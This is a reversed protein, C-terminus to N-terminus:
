WSECILGRVHDRWRAVIERAPEILVDEQVVDTLFREFVRRGGRRIPDYLISHHVLLVLVGGVSRVREEIEVLRALADDPGLRKYGFLATDMVHLPLEWVGLRRRAAVSYAEFPYSTGTRFGADEAYGLTSDIELGAAGAATWTAPVRFRLYHQRGAVVPERCVRQLGRREAGLTEPSDYSSYSGHLGIEHGAHELARLQGEIGGLDYRGDYRTTGGAMFFYTARVGHASEIEALDALTEEYPDRRRGVAVGVFDRFLRVLEGHGSRVAARVAGAIGRLSSLLRIRDIDHTVCIAYSHGGWPSRSPLDPWRQKLTNLFRKAQRDVIPESLRDNAYAWAETLPFRGHMDTRVEAAEEIRSLHFFTSAIPDADLRCFEEAFGRARQTPLVGVRLEDWLSSPCLHLMDERDSSEPPRIGYCVVARFAATRGAEQGYKAIAHPLGAISFLHGAAYAICDLNRDDEVLLLVGNIKSM